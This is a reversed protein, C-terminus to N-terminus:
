KSAHFPKLATMKGFCNFLRQRLFELLWASLFSCSVILLAYAAFGPVDRIVIKGLFPRWFSHWFIPHVLWLYMGLSKNSLSSVLRRLMPHRIKLRRCIGFLALAMTFTFPSTYKIPEFSGFWLGVDGAFVRKGISPILFAFSFVGLIAICALLNPDKEVHLRWYAGFLYVILLWAFCYGNKLVLPDKPMFLSSVGVLLFFALLIRSFTKKDLSRAGPNIFPVFLCVIFYATFYWYEGTMVPFVARLWDYAGVDRGMLSGIGAILVGVFFVQLWLNTLRKLTNNSTVCLYGTTIAFLDVCTLSLSHTAYWITRLGVSASDVMTFGWDVTHHLIVFIVALVKVFDIGYNREKM